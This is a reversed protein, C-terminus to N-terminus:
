PQLFIRDEQNSKEHQQSKFNKLLVWWRRLLRKWKRANPLLIGRNRCILWCRLAIVVLAAPAM